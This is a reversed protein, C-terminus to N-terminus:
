ECRSFDDYLAKALQKEEVTVSDRTSWENLLSLLNASLRLVRDQTYVCVCVCVRVRQKTRPVTRKLLPASYMHTHAHARTHTRTHSATFQYRQELVHAHACM